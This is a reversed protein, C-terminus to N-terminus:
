SGQRISQQSGSARLLPGNLRIIKKLIFDAGSKLEEVIAICEIQLPAINLQWFTQDLSYHFRELKKQRLRDSLTFHFRFADFVFPYGWCQLNKRQEDTLNNRTRHQMESVSLPARLHDLGRVIESALFEVSSDRGNAPRIAVFQSLTSLELNAIEVRPLNQALTSTASFLDRESAGECLRFPAKLTAHFGYHRAGLNYSLFTEASIGDLEIRDVEAGTECDRGLVQSGFRGLIGSNPPIYYIAYRSQSSMAKFWVIELVGSPGFQLGTM